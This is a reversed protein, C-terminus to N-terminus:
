LSSVRHRCLRSAASECISIRHSRTSLPTNFVVTLTDLNNMMAGTGAGGPCTVTFLGPIANGCNLFEAFPITSFLPGTGSPVVSAALDITSINGGADAATIAFSWGALGGGDSSVTEILFDTLTGGMTLDLPGVSAGPTGIGDWVVTGEGVVGSDNNFNLTGGFVSISSASVNTGDDTCGSICNVGIDRYGGLIDAQPGIEGAFVFNGAANNSDDIASQTPGTFFDVVVPAATATFSLGLLAPVAMLKFTKKM